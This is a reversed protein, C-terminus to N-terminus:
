KNIVVELDPQNLRELAAVLRREWSGWVALVSLELTFKRLQVREEAGDFNLARSQLAQVMVDQFPLIEKSVVKSQDKLTVKLDTLRPLTQANENYVMHMMTDTITGLRSFFFDFKIHVSELSPLSNLLSILGVSYTCELSTVASMHSFFPQWISATATDLPGLWRLYLVSPLHIDSMFTANVPCDGSDWTLYKLDQLMIPTESTPDGPDSTCVGESSFRFLNPCYTLLSLAHTPNPNKLTLSTLYQFPLHFEVGPLPQIMEIDRLCASNCFAIGDAVLQFSRKFELRLSNLRPFDASVAFSSIHDWVTKDIPGLSLTEIKDSCNMFVAASLQLLPSLPAKFGHNTSLHFTLPANKANQCHLNFHDWVAPHTPNLSVTTWLTPSTWIVQRWRFCVAALCYIPCDKDHVVFEFISTLTEPPFIWTTDRHTNASRRFYAREVLLNHIEDDIRATNADIHKLDNNRTATDDM